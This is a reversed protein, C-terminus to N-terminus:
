PIWNTLIMSQSVTKPNTGNLWNIKATVIIQDPDSRSEVATITRVFSTAVFEQGGIPDPYTSEYGYFGVTPYSLITDCYKSCARIKADLTYPDIICGNSGFCGTNSGYGQVQGNEDVNLTALWDNWLVGQAVATDRSNRIYELSEQLLNDGVIQNRAYRVSFFGGAALSLLAGVTMTLILIAVLTEVLTFGKQSQPTNYKM